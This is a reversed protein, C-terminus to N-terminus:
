FGFSLSATVSKSRPTNSTDIAPAYTSAAVEPDIGTYKTWCFLNNMTVYASLNSLGWKRVMKKPFSYSIQLNQFRLFAGDEVFRSSVEYNYGSNYLARPLETVDGDKRWRYNVSACQNDTGYMSELGMRAANLIKNGWRYTFRAVLKWNGYQATLSFGGQLKPLSNGLYVIDLENIQGDHNIDEYYADGGRFTYEPTGNQYVYVLHQPEGNNTMIVHGNADTAVPFTKGEALWQNIQNEYDTSTWNPNQQKMKTNFNTLYDYSYQFVGKSQYGYISCLPAGVEVKNMRAANGRKTYVDGYKTNYGALVDKNMELLENANQAMNFSASLTFKKIKLFKNANISLEWGKNEIKGINAFSVTTYGTTSPIPANKVILDSTKEKYINLDMEIIDNLFGLNFGLNLGERKQPKLTTLKLGSMTIYSDQGYYQNSVITYTNYFNAASASTSGSIGWSGRIGLMSVVKRLPEFFKEDSLNYRVSVSPSYFWPNDPGFGSSCDGRLSFGLNYREKYSFHANYVFNQSASKVTSLSNSMARNNAMAEITELGNPLQSKAAYQYSYRGTNCEYRGLMTLSIDENKFYPTYILEARAGLKFNNKETNTAYNYTNDTYFGNSLSGPMYTPLSYAYIDFYVRGNFTLRSQKSETGLLEYKLNFDPVISYTQEKQWSSNAYAVPNGIKYVSNMKLSSYNGDYPTKGNATPNMLYYEGNDRYIAMNPAMSLAMALINNNSSTNKSSGLTYNKLNDTYTLAFNTSFRIRDSVNYDLVLRTTLRDLRQKIITGTQHNYGASIRFTAKQGGGTINVNAEHQQGFQSVQDVWDTNKNWYNYESYTPDYNIEAVDITASADQAPNYFEEKLMMTYQDGNLLKYGAPMWTGTFKYSLNVKPKGRNGRKTTIQIVGNAGQSGWIATAAADKLVTISAIDDVNVALLSSFAENDANEIDIDESNYEFIKDDVVILPQSNGSLSSVGRLRMTSGSGLNGSNSVIDLGAIEGQLAEDASTFAMGEVESLNFTQQSVSIEKKQINLGGANARRGRVTVENLTTKEDELKIAFTTENGIKKKWTKSGVYSVVLMNKTNKVEMSFNGMMDTQTANIIRDNADRETVNAFMVPGMADEVTGSIVVGQAMVMQTIVFLIFTLLVKQKSMINM